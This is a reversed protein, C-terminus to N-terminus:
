SGVARQQVVTVAAPGQPVQEGSRCMGISAALLAPSGNVRVRGAAGTWSVTLCPQPKGAVTFPCGTVTYVEALTAVPQSGVVVSSRTAQPMARGGHPCTVTAGVHLLNGSM